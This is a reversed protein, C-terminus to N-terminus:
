DENEALNFHFKIHRKRCKRWWWDLPQYSVMKQVATCFGRHQDYGGTCLYLTCDWVEKSDGMQSHWDWLTSLIKKLYKVCEEADGEGWFPVKQLSLTSGSSDNVLLVHKSQFTYSLSVESTFNKKMLQHLQAFVMMWLVHLQEWHRNTSSPSLHQSSLAPLGNQFLLFHVMLRSLPIARPQYLGEVPPQRNLGVSLKNRHHFLTKWNVAFDMLPLTHLCWLCTQSPCSWGQTWMLRKPVRWTM